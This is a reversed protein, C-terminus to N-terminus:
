ISSNFRHLNRLILKFSIGFHQSAKHMAEDKTLGKWILALIYLIIKM